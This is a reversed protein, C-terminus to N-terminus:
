ARIEQDSWKELNQPGAAQGAFQGFESVTRESLVVHACGGTRKQTTRGPSRTIGCSAHHSHVPAKLNLRAHGAM